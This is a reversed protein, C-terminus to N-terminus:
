KLGKEVCQSFIPEYADRSAQLVAAPDPVSDRYLAGAWPRSLLAGRQSQEDGVLAEEIALWGKRM